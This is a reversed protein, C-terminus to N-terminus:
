KAHFSDTEQTTIDSLTLGLCIGDSSRLQLVAHQTLQLAAALGAPLNSGKGTLVVKSKGAAGGSYLLKAVGDSTLGRDLFKYGKGPGRPDNPAHGLPKWCPKGDCLDGARDVRVSGALGTDAYICLSYATGSGGQPAALPNGLDTQSLAPGKLLKAVLKEHGPVSQKILLAGKAFGITCGGDVTSPCADNGTPTPTPTDSPTPTASPTTPNGVVVDLTTMSAADGSTNGNFNVANGWAQLTAISDGAPATWLFSFQTVGGAAGKPESHTIELREGAGSLTQTDASFSGGTALTGLESSVNLGAHDQLGIQFVSFTFEHTSLPAVAPPDGCDTCALTVTPASGGGHCFNCGQAPLPFSTTAIGSPYAQALSAWCGFLGILLARRM